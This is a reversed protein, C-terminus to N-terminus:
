RNVSRAVIEPPRANPLITDAEASRLSAFRTRRWYLRHQGVAQTLRPERASARKSEKLLRPLGEVRRARSRPQGRPPHAGRPSDRGAAGAAADEGDARGRRPRPGHEGRRPAPPDGDHDLAPAGV